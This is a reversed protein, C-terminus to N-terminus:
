RWPRNTLKPSWSLYISIYQGVYYVTMGNNPVSEFTGDPHQYFLSPTWYASRDMQVECTSCTAEM